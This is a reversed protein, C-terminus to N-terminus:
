ELPEGVDDRFGHGSVIVHFSEEVLAVAKSVAQEESAAPVIYCLSWADVYWYFWGRAQQTDCLDPDSNLGVYSKQAPVPAGVPEGQTLLSPIKVAEVPQSLSFVVAFTWCGKLVWARLCLSRRVKCFKSM